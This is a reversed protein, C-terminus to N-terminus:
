RLFPPFGGAIESPPEAASVWVTVGASCAVTPAPAADYSRGRGLDALVVPCAWGQRAANSMSGSHGSAAALPPCTWHAPHSM